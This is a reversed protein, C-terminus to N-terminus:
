GEQSCTIAGMGMSTKIGVGSFEGFQLLMRIYRALTEPGTTKITIQGCFGTIRVKEMPFPVTQLRFKVIESRETITELTDEDAMELTDSVASYKQMLSQYILRLDPYFIYRGGSKFATPTLFSVTIYRGCPKDYFDKVLNKEQILETKQSILEAEIGKKRIIIKDLKTMPIIINEYAEETLTKIYWIPKGKEKLLCQSYPNIQTEHLKQAYATDITEMIIGQLNSSKQYSIRDSDLEMRLRAYM